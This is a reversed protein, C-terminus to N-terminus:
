EPLSNALTLGAALARERVYRATPPAASKLQLYHESAAPGNGEMLYALILFGTAPPNGPSQELMKEAQQRAKAPMRAAMYSQALYVRADMATPALVLGKELAEIARGLNLRRMQAEGLNVWGNALAPDLRVTTELAEAAETLRNLKLLAYGKSSWAQADTPRAMLAREIYVLSAPMDNKGGLVRAMTLNFGPLVPETNELERLLQLAGDVDNSGLRAEAWSVRAGPPLPAAANARTYFSNAEAYRKAELSLTARVQLAFANDPALALAAAVDALALAAQGRVRRIEARNLLWDPQTPELAIAKSVAEDAPEPRQGTVLVAGLLGWAAASGPSLAVAKRATEEAQVLRGAKRDIEGLTILARTEEAPTSGKLLNARFAQSSSGDEASLAALRVKTYTETSGLRLAATYAAIAEGRHGLAEQITGLLEWSQFREPKKRLSESIQRLADEPKKERMLQGARTRQPEAYGPWLKEARSLAPEAAEPQGQDIQLGALMLWAFPQHEDLALAQRFSAEAEVSPKHASQAMGLYIWALAAGPQARTWAEAHRKLEDFRGAAQLDEAIDNWRKEADPVVVAAPPRAGRALLDKIGEAVVIKNLNQGTGLVATTLGLLRGERDFLGGGSSGPSQPATAVLLAYPEAKQVIAILGNSVSLGFGLPNGVAYAPEGVALTASQRLQVAPAKLEPVSLLCLDADALQRSWTAKFDGSASVVRIATEDRVVHCNTAVQGPAVVVGSGHGDQVRVTVVSAAVRDYVARADGAPEAATEALAAACSLVLALPAWRYPPNMAKNM